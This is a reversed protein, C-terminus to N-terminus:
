PAPHGPSTKPSLEFSTKDIDLSARLSKQERTTAQVRGALLLYYDNNPSFKVTFSTRVALARSMAGGTDTLLTEKHLVAGNSDKVFVWADTSIASDAAADASNISCKGDISLTVICEAGPDDSVTFKHGLQFGSSAAGEGSCEVTCRATGDPKASAEARGGGSQTSNPFAVNFPMDAPIRITGANLATTRIPAARQQMVPQPVEFNGGGCANIFPIAVLSFLLSYRSM